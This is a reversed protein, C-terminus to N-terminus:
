GRSRTWRRRARRAIGRSWGPRAADEDEEIQHRLAETVKGPLDDGDRWGACLHNDHIKKLFAALKVMKVPDTEM